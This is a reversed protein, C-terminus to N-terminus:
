PRLSFTQWPSDLHWAPSVYALLRLPVPLAEIDLKARLRGVYHTDNELLTKDLIPLDSVHGIGRLAAGIGPYTFNRGSNVHKVLVQETLAHYRLEYRQELDAVKGDWLYDRPKVIEIDVSITLPVGSHLAELAAASLKYDITATLQYVGDVEDTEAHRVAFPQAWLSGSVLLCVGTGLLGAYASARPAAGM